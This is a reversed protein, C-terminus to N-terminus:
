LDGGWPELVKWLGLGGFGLIYVFLFTLWNGTAIWEWIPCVLIPPVCTLGVGVGVGGWQHYLFFLTMIFGINLGALALVVVFFRLARITSLM